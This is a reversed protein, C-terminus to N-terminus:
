YFVIVDVNIWSSVYIYKYKKFVSEKERKLDMLDRFGTWGIEM